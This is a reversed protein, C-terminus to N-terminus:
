FDTRAKIIILHSACVLIFRMLFVVPAIVAVMLLPSVVITVVAFLAPLVIGSVLSFFGVVIFSGSVRLRDVVFKVPLLEAPFLAVLHRADSLLSDVFILREAPLISSWLPQCLDLLHSSALPFNQREFFLKCLLVFRLSLHEFSLCQLKTVCRLLFRPLLCFDDLFHGSFLALNRLLLSCPFELLFTASALGGRLRKVPLHSAVPDLLTVLVSRLRM